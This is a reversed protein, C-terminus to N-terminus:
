AEKEISEIAKKADEMLSDSYICKEFHIYRTKWRVKLMFEGEERPEWTYDKSRGVLYDKITQFLEKLTRGTYCRDVPRCMGDVFYGCRAKYYVIEKM